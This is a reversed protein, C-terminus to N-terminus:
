HTQSIKGNILVKREPATSQDPVTIYVIRGGSSGMSDHDCDDLDGGDSNEKGDGDKRFLKRDSQNKEPYKRTEDITPSTVYKLNEIEKDEHVSTDHSSRCSSIAQRHFKIGMLFGLILSLVIAVLIAVAFLGKDIGNDTAFFCHYSYYSHIFLYIFSHAFSYIFSCIFLYILLNIFLHAFPNILSNIYFYISPHIFM